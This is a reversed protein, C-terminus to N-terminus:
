RDDKMEKELQKIRRGTRIVNCITLVSVIVALLSIIITAISM